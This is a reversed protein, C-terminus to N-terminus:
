LRASYRNIKDDIYPAIKQVISESAATVGELVIRYRVLHDASAGIYAHFELPRNAAVTHACNM